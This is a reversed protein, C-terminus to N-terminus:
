EDLILQQENWDWTWQKFIRLVDMGLISVVRHRPRPVYRRKPPLIQFEDFHFGLLTIETYPPDTRVPLILDVNPLLKPITRGSATTIPSDADPLTQYPIKFYHVHDKLLCSCSAGTDILMTVPFPALLGQHDLLCDLLAHVGDIRGILRM